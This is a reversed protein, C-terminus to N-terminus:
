NVVAIKVIKTQVEDNNSASVHAFYVGPHLETTDWGLEKIQIGNNISQVNFSKIFYGALDYINIDINSPGYTEVRITGLGEHIPNPYCYAKHLFSEADDNFIYDFNLKRTKGIDGHETSWANGKPDKYTDFQYITSETFICGRGQYEGLAIIDDDDDTAINLVEMGKNNFVYLKKKDKSKGVIEPSEDGIINQSLIPASLRIDIPFSPMLTLEYNFAYLMGNTDLALLDSSADLDIDIGALYTFTKTGWKNIIDGFNESTIGKNNIDISYNTPSSLVRKKHSNWQSSNKWELLSSDESSIPYLLTDILTDSIFTISDQSIIYDYEYHRLSNEYFEFVHIETRNEHTKLFLDIDQVLTNHFYAKMMNEKNLQIYLSDQGGIFDKLGDNNIDFSLIYHFTSDPYEHPIYSNSVIFKMTDRARSIDGIHIFTPSSDNARTSPYTDPGFIPKLGSMNPNAYVYQSNGKYWMDGFWGSSPDNFIDLSVYGIDQAGDAEELDIGRNLIDSNIAYTLLGDNIVSEDIHWILMGSEPLGIDYNPVSIVVGNVDKEIGSSDQLIEVYSPYINTASNSGMVYRMSDISVNPRIWNSRVEILYYEDDRIPVKLISNENRTALSYELGLESIIPTEWGAYIRTWATPPAPIIGRGNNSGQDMLGFIGVGSEGTEINWLPPLGIAFGLMLSFTGTLGYQYECPNEADAFMSESIDFLLHNQTEPLLIGKQLTHNGITIFSEGLHENIMDEDIYTSPIDEPTPDLFPLSFDQGIGAHFVIVLDYNSFEIQDIEYSKELADKFLKTLRKEQLSYDDYPNYYNMTEILQYSGNVSSPYIHSNEIDIGFKGYSVNQYYTNVSKLQSLFYNYDHPPPDIAYAGCDIGKNTLLFQGNGTTSSISDEAFSVRILCVSIPETISAFLLTKLCVLILFRYM